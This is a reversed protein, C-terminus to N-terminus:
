GLLSILFINKLNKNEKDIWSKHRYSPGARFELKNSKVFSQNSWGRENTNRIRNYKQRLYFETKQGFMEVYCNGYEFVISHNQKFIYSIIVNMIRLARNRLKLDTHIHLIENYIKRETEYNSKILKDLSELGKKTKLILPHPNKLKLPVNFSFTPDNKLEYIRKHFPSTM